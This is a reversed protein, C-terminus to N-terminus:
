SIKEAKKNQKAKKNALYMDCLKNAPKTVVVPVFFRYVFGFVIMTRLPSMGKVRTMLNKANSTKNIADKELIDIYKKNSEVLKKVNPMSKLEPKKIGNQKAALKIEKNEAAAKRKAEMFNSYFNEDKLQHGAFRATVNEWWGKIYKDLAYAGLTSVGFTLGQNVALTNKRDKDLNKNTLTRQVYLGSTVASGVTLCHQFLKDSEKFRDALKEISGWEVFRSTVKDAIKDTFQDYRRNIPAFFGEKGGKFTQQNNRYQNNYQLPRINM